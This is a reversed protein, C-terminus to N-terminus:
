AKRVTFRQIAGDLADLGKGNEEVSQHAQQSAAFVMETSKVVESVRGQIVESMNSLQASMRRSTDAEAKIQAAESKVQGTISEIRKLSEQVQRSYAAQEGVAAKVRDVVDNSELVLGQTQVSAAQIRQSLATVEAIRKQIETLTGGSGKVQAATTEALKRIESAVVAFGKGAVGAHAAEIAANMALLNTQAAVTDIVKNMLALNASDAEIQHITNAAHTIYEHETKSSGMLQQMRDHLAAIQAEMDQNSVTMTKIASSSANVQLAQDQILTNLSYVKDDIQAVAQAVTKGAMSVEEKIRQEVDRIASVIDEAATSSQDIVAKLKSEHSRMREFSATINHILGSIHENIANFGASLRSAEVIGYEPVTGSFDGGALVTAYTTLSQLPKVIIRACVLSALIAIIMLLMGIGLIQLLTRNTDAFITKTPIVSVLYWNTEPIFSSAIFVEDDMVSFSPSGLISARYQELGLETFLNKQMVASENPNTIFHGDRTILFSQQEAIFANANVINGLFNATIEESIIGMDQGQADFMTKSIALVLNGTAPDIYPDTFAVKGQAQKALIFWPRDRNDWDAPPVWEPYIVAYGGPDTWRVNSTYYLFSIDQLIAMNQKLYQYMDQIPPPGAHLLSTVGTATTHLLDTYRAVMTTVGERIRQTNEQTAVEVQAYSIRRLHILSVVSVTFSGLILASVCLAIFLLAFSPKKRQMIFEKM